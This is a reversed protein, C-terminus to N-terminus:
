KTFFFCNCCFCIDDLVTKQQELKKSDERLDPPVESRFLQKLQILCLNPRTYSYIEQVDVHAWPPESTTCSSIRGDVKRWRFVLHPRCSWQCTSIGGQRVLQGPEENRIRVVLSHFARGAFTNGSWYLKFTKLVLTFVSNRALYAGDKVADDSLM